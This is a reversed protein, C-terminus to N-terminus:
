RRFKAEPGLGRIEPLFSHLSLGWVWLLAWKVRERWRIVSLPWGLQSVDVSQLPLPRSSLKETPESEM